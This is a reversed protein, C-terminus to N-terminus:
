NGETSCWGCPTQHIRIPMLTASGVQGSRGPQAAIQADHVDFCFFRSVCVNHMEAMYQCAPGYCMGRAQAAAPMVNAFGIATRRACCRLLKGAATHVVVARMAAPLFTLRECQRLYFHLGVSAKTMSSYCNCVCLVASM